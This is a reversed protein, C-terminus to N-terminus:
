RRGGNVAAPSPGVPRSPSIRFLRDLRGEAALRHLSNLMSKEAQERLGTAADGDPLREIVLSVRAGCNPCCLRVSSPPPSM